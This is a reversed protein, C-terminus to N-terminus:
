FIYIIIIIQLPNMYLNSQDEFVWNDTSQTDNLLQQAQSRM